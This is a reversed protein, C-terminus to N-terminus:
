TALFQRVVREFEEPQDNHIGHGAGAIRSVKAQPMLSLMRQLVEEGLSESLAGKLILTPCKVKATQEWLYPVENAGFSGTIWFIEPDHRWVLKGAYNWRLAGRITREMVEPHASPNQEKMYNQAEEVSRFGLPRAGVRQMVQRAHSSSSTQPGMDGLILHRLRDCHDGAYAVCVRVGLSHGLLDYSNIGLKNTLEHIDSAFSTVAYDQAHGSEGHGRLDLALVHYQRGMSSGFPEWTRANGTIGHLLVLVPADKKGWELYHLQVGNVKIHREKPPVLVNTQTVM